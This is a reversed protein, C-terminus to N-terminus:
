DSLSSQELLGADRLRQELRGMASRLEAANELYQPMFDKATDYRAYLSEFVASLPAAVLEPSVKLEYLKRFFPVLYLLIENWRVYFEDEIPIGFQALWNRVTHEQKDSGCTLPNLIFRLTLPAESTQATKDGLLMRGVPFMACIVPKSDHVRCRKDVLLPCVKNAGRPLIRVIPIRSNHGIYVECYQRITEEITIGLKRAMNYLDRPTLIIDERQTCCKGCERCKFRFTDDPGIQHSMYYEAQDKNM